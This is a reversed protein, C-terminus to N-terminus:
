KNRQRKLMEEFAEPVYDDPYAPYIWVHEKGIQEQLALVEALYSNICSSCSNYAYRFFLANKIGYMDKVSEYSRVIEPVTMIHTMLAEDDVTVLEIRNSKSLNFRIATGTATLILFGFLVILARNSNM